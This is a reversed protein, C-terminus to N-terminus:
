SGLEDVRRWFRLRHSHRIVVHEGSAFRLDISEVRRRAMARDLPLLWEEELVRDRLDVLDLVVSGDSGPSEVSDAITRQGLPLSEIGALGALARMEPRNSSTSRLQTRVYDPLAGAGWFWLSNVGIAGRAIRGANVPHNHLAIQAENFLQRWRKGAPGQPLHLKLDDGIADDPSAAHPLESGKAARLYWRDTRCADFEFGADGFLPKLDREISRCEAISLGLEGCALMRATSMDARVHAPDARMWLSGAADGADFQRSLAAIPLDKGPWEFLPRLIGEDPSANGALRDGRASWRALTGSAVVASAVCRKWAPLLLIIRIM